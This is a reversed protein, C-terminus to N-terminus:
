SSLQILNLKIKALNEMLLNEMFNVFHFFNVLITGLIQGVNKLSKTLFNHPINGERQLGLEM